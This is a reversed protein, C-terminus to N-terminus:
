VEPLNIDLNIQFVEMLDKLIGVNLKLVEHELSAKEDDTLGANIENIRLIQTQYTRRVYTNSVVFDEFKLAYVEDAATTLIEFIETGKEDLELVDGVMEIDYLLGDLLDYIMQSEALQEETYTPTNGTNGQQEDDNNDDNNDDDNNDDDNNDDNNNNNNNNNNSPKRNGGSGNGTNIQGDSASTNSQVPNIFFGDDEEKGEDKKPDDTKTEEKPSEKVFDDLASALEGRTMYETARFKGGEELNIYGLAIMNVVSDKAWDSVADTIEATKDSPTNVIRSLITCVQERTITDTGHFRGDGYGKIYGEKIAILAHSYYWDASSVDTFINEAMTEYGFTLNVMKCFEARTVSNQARYTYTGDPELIGNIVGADVLKKISQGLPTDYNVDTMVLSNVASQTSGATAVETDAVCYNVMSVVLLLTIMLSLFKKM